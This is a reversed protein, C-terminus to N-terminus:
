AMRNGKAYELGYEILQRIAASRTKFRKEHFYDDIAQALSPPAATWIRETAEEPVSPQEPAPFGIIAAKAM